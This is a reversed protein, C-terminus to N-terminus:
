NLRPCRFGTTARFATTAPLRWCVNRRLRSAPACTRTCIAGTSGSRNRSRRGRRTPLIASSRGQTELQSRSRVPCHAVSAIDQRLRAHPPAAVDNPSGVLHNGEDVRDDPRELLARGVISRTIGRSRAASSRSGAGSTVPDSRCATRSRIPFTLRGTPLPTCGVRCTASRGSWGSATRCECSNTPMWRSSSILGRKRWRRGPWRAYHAVIAPVLARPGSLHQLPLGERRLNALIEATGDFSGHDVIALGDLVCLNHRVFAEIVDAENRVMAVGWLRM